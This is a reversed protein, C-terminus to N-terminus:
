VQTRTTGHTTLPPVLSVAWGFFVGWFLCRSSRPHKAACCRCSDMAVPLHCVCSPNNRTLIDSRCPSTGYWDMIKQLVPRFIAEYNEDDIGDRLPFNVAYRKGDGAGVDEIDGTGSGFVSLVGMPILELDACREYPPSPEDPQGPSLLLRGFHHFELRFTM